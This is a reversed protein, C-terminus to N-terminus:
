SIEEEEKAIDDKVTLEIKSGEVKPAVMLINNLTIIVPDDDELNKAQKLKQALLYAYQKIMDNIMDEIMGLYMMINDQTLGHSKQLEKFKKTTDNDVLQFIEEINLKIQNIKEITAKYEIINKKYDSESQAIKEEL